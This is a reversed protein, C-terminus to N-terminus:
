RPHRASRGHIIVLKAVVGPIVHHPPRELHNVSDDMAGMAPPVRAIGRIGHGRRQAPAADDHRAVVPAVHPGAPPEGALRAHVQLGVHAEVVQRDGEPPLNRTAAPQRAWAKGRAEHLADGHHLAATLAQRGDSRRAQREGGAQWKPM